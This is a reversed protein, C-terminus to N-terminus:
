RQIYEIKEISQMPLEISKNTKPDRGILWDRSRIVLLIQSNKKSDKNTVDLLIQGGFGTKKLFNSYNNHNFLLSICLLYFLIATILSILFLAVRSWNSLISLSVFAGFTLSIELLREPPNTGLALGVYSVVVATLAFLIMLITLKKGSLKSLNNHIGGLQQLSADLAKSRFSPKTLSLVKKITNLFLYSFYDELIFKQVIHGFLVRTILFTVSVLITVLLSGLAVTAQLYPIGEVPIRVNEKIAYWYTAYESLYGIFAPGAIFALSISFAIRWFLSLAFFNDIIKM